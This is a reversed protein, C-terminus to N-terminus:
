PHEWEGQGPIDLFDGLVGPVGDNVSAKRGKLCRLIEELSKGRVASRLFLWWLLFNVPHFTTVVGEQGPAFMLGAHRAVDDTLWTFRLWAAVDGEFWRREAGEERLLERWEQNDLLVRAWEVRDSWESVHRVILRRLATREAEGADTFFARIDDPGLVKATGPGKGRRDAAPAGKRPRSEWGLQELLPRSRVVLDRGPDDEAPVLYRGYLALDMAQAYRDDAFVQVHVVRRDGTRDGFEGALGLVDSTDLVIAADPIDAPSFLGVYGARLAAVQDPQDKLSLSELGPGTPPRPPPLDKRVAPLKRLLGAAPPSSWDVADLHMYLSFVVLENRLQEKVEDPAAGAGEGEPACGATASRLRVPLSIRHRLLVFNNSGLGRPFGGAPGLHAAVLEGKLLPVVPTGAVCPVHIGDHWTQNVGVPYYGGGSQREVARALFRLFRVAEAENALAGDLSKRTAEPTAFAGAAVLAQDAADQALGSPDSVSPIVPFTADEKRLAALIRAWDLGPGPDWKQEDSHWHCQIGGFQEPPPDALVTRLIGGDQDMPFVPQLGVDDMLVRLVATLASYQPDSYTWSVFPTGNIVVQPSPVGGLPPAVDPTRLLNTASSNLDIGVGVANMGQAHWAMDAVDAVQYVTGDRDIMFHTSLARALLTDFCSKSSPSGDHHLVVAHIVRRLAAFPGAPDLKEWGAGQLGLVVPPAGAPRPRPRVLPLQDGTDPETGVVAEVNPPSGRYFSYGGPDLFTVVKVSPDPLSRRQGAIIIDGM